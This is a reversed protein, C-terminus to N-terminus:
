WGAEEHQRQRREAARRNSELSIQEPVGVPIVHIEEVKFRWSTGDVVFEDGHRLNAGLDLQLIGYLESLIAEWTDVEDQLGHHLGPHICVNLGPNINFTKIFEMPYKLGIIECQSFKAWAHDDRAFNTAKVTYTKM